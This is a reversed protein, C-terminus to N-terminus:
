SVFFQFIPYQHHSILARLQLFLGCPCENLANVLKIVDILPFRLLQSPSTAGIPTILFLRLEVRRGFQHCELILIASSGGERRKGM